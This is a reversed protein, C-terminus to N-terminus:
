RLVKDDGLVRVIPGDKCVYLKRGLFETLCGKCAGWGCAMNAELSCQVDKVRDRKVMRYVSEMMALPACMYLCGIGLSLIYEGADIGNGKRGFMGDESFVEIQYYTLIDSIVKRAQKGDRVSWVLVFEKEASLCTRIFFNLPALGVGGALLGIKGNAEPGKFWNGLPGILFLEDSDVIAASGRGRRRVLFEIGSDDCYFVSIPRPLFIDDRNTLIQFFQGPKPDLKVGEAWVCRFWALDDWQKQEVKRVLTKNLM